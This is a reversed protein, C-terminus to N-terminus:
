RPLLLTFVAALVAVVVFLAACAVVFLRLARRIDAPAPDRGNGIWSEEVVVGEYLRPGSLRIDLAGAMAAEPVGANPSAHDGADRLMTRAASIFSAGAGTPLMAALVLMAGAFRAPFYNAADDLKAAVRGFLRYRENRHGIMSDATNLAKYAMLGPLGFIAAWFVPAVVGDSFNEALSEIAARSVGAEDLKGTDRGVIRAVAKRGAEIGDGELADAVDRVHVYLSRQAVLVAMLVAEVAWGWGFPRLALHIAVGLGASAGVLILTAAGGAVLRLLDSLGDRNWAAEMAALARGMLAVPHPVRRYLWDPDGALADLVLALALPLLPSPFLM